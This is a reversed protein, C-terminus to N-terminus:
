CDPAQGVPQVEVPQNLPVGGPGPTTSIRLAIELAREESDVDVVWYGALVEKSEPFPGDTVVPEGDDQARVTKVQDPGALGREEVLEGSDALEQDLQHMFEVMVKVDDQSWTTALEDWGQKNAHMMLMYKM